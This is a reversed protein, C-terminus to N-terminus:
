REAVPSLHVVEAQHKRETLTLPPSPSFSQTILFPLVSHMSDIDM